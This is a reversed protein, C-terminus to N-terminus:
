GKYGASYQFRFIRASLYFNRALCYKRTTSSVGQRSINASFLKNYSKTINKLTKKHNPSMSTIPLSSIKSLALQDLICENQLSDYSHNLFCFKPATVRTRKVKPVSTMTKKWMFDLTVM